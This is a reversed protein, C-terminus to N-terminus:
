LKAGRRPRRRDKRTAPCSSRAPVHADVSSGRCRRLIRRSKEQPGVGRPTPEFQIGTFATCPPRPEARSVFFAAGGAPDLHRRCRPCTRRPLGRARTGLLLRPAVDAVGPPGPTPIGGPGPLKWFPASISSPRPLPSAPWAVAAPVGFAGLLGRAQVIDEVDKSCLGSAVGRHWEPGGRRLGPPDGAAEFRRRREIAIRVRPHWAAIEADLAEAHELRAALSAFRSEDQWEPRGLVRCLREWEANTAVSIACWRDEGRCPYCGYPAARLSRNGLRAPEQGLALTEMM